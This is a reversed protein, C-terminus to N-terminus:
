RAEGCAGDICDAVAGEAIVTEVTGDDKEIVAEILNRAGAIGSELPKTGTVRGVIESGTATIIKVATDGIATAKVAFAKGEAEALESLGTFIAGKERAYADIIDAAASEASVKGVGKATIRFAVPVISRQVSDPILAVNEGGFGGIEYELFEVGELTKLMGLNRLKAIVKYSLEVTKGEVVLPTGDPNRVVGRYDTYIVSGDEQISELASALVQQDLGLAQALVEASEKTLVLATKQNTPVEAPSKFHSCGVNLTLAALTLILILYKM